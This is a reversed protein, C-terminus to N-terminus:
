IILNQKRLVWEASLLVIIVVLIWWLDILQNEALESYTIPTIQDNQLISDRLANMQGLTFFSANTKKALGRLLHFNAVTNMKELVVANVHITGQKSYVINNYTVDARYRYDGPKLLGAALEYAHATKSMVYRYEHKEADILTVQVEADNVAEYSQNYLEGEMALTENENIKAPVHLRFFSKDKKVALYQVVKGVLSNFLRHDGKDAYNRLKWRWLGDGIFVAFKCGNYESFLLVPNETEIQGIKQKIFTETANLPTYNGFFTKLAPVEKLYTQLEKDVTFLNFAENPYSEVETFRSPGVNLKVGPLNDPSDPNVVWVPIGNTKCDNLLAVDTGRFGHIIVLAYPKVTGNFTGDGFCTLSYNSKSEISEKLAAIDPHPAHSVLAIKEKNDIVDITFDRRNNATNKEGTLISVEASYAQIGKEDASLTFSLTSLSPSKGPLLTKTQLTRGQKLLRVEVMQPPVKIAAIQIEVLFNDGAYAVENHAIKQVALDLYTTTDGVGITYVPFKCRSIAMDPGAGKNYIGDSLLIMAGVNMNGYNNDVHAFLTEFDSEKERFNLSTLTNKVGSGFPLYEVRYKGAIGEGLKRVADGINQRIGSSDANGVLSSSNDIALLIVPKETTNHYHRLIIQLLLLCCFFSSLFRLGALVFLTRTPVDKAQRLKYYLIACLSLAILGCAVLWLWSSQLIIKSPM